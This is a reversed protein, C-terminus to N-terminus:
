FRGMAGASGLGVFPSITAAGTTAGDTQGVPLLVLLVGVGLGAAGVAFGVSSVSANRRADDILSLSSPPCMTGACSRDLAWKNELADIGFMTGVTIGAAAIGFAVIAPIASRDSRPHAGPVSGYSAGASELELAVDVSDEGALDVVHVASTRGAKRATIKRRGASVLLPESLPTVGMVADDVMVSAGDVNATVRVHAVRGHLEGISATVQERRDQAIEADGEALYKEFARLSGVYDELQYRCQGINYLVRYQPSLRYAREFEVLATRFDHEGYLKVGRDFHTAASLAPPDPPFDGAHCPTSALVTLAAVLAAPLRRSRIM